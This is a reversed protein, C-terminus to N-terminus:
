EVTWEFIGASYEKPFQVELRLASTKIKKFNVVNFRDKNVSYPNLNEVPLWDEGAKYSLKWSAPVRCEGDTEDDFWYVKSSSIKQEKDFDYQVWETSNKEPWWHYYIISHDNSNAPEYQDNLARLNKVVSSASIKSMSAISPLPAPLTMDQSQPIWVEMEGPGRNAWTYYPIALLSQSAMGIQDGPLKATSEVFGKIVIIGGLMEPNYESRLIANERIFINMVRQGPQDIGEACYVLPGREIAVHGIDATVNESAEIMRIPMPLKLVIIDGKNWLRHLSAYGNKMIINVEKGNLTMKILQDYKDTFRYLNGPIPQERAWGPIRILMEFSQPKKPEVTIKITGDWPYTTEQSIAVTDNEPCIEASNRIFLNIYISSDTYAYIYGPVSPLFRSINVPCCACGFWPSREHQGMSALPNPYFFRDGSLSVGSIIGNYLVRELVDYYKSDGKLLFMRQNWLANAIAACTECYATMNPLDYPDGFGENGGVAGLGGTIYTKKFVVDDWLKDLATVYSQDDTLAAVDAMAAYMYQARVAHGVAVDQDVVRKHMQAYEDGGPGRRDLFFKALSLYKTEGTLRYLKVLGIEIEQHGPVKELRGWGFTKDILDANKLAVDLLTRKGTAQYFAVAAEYLHGANYLEHSFQEENVWRENGAMEHTHISDITRNTYLYGDKEQAAAIYSILTDLYAELVPDPFEQLSYSAGEINKYVDSDDFPYLSCFSGQEIGGAIMFNKIRGTEEAKEFAVPITIEKNIKMRPAWFRDNVKVKTFPVPKIQYDKQAFMIRQGALFSLLVICIVMINRM